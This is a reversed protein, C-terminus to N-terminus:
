QQPPRTNGYHILMCNPLDKQTLYRWPDVVISGPLINCYFPQEYVQEMTTNGYTTPAHHAMLVVGQIQSHIDNTLPDVYNPKMGLRELFYGVLLSYSGDIYSVNPKFAKGHIWVQSQNHELALDYLRKALNEAQKERALM